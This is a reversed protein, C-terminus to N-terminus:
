HWGGAAKSRSQGPLQIPPQTPELAPRSPRPFDRGGGPNSGLGNLGYRTAIGVSSVWRKINNYQTTLCLLLFPIAASCYAVHCACCGGLWGGPVLTVFAAKVYRRVLMFSEYRSTSTVYPQLMRSLYCYQATLPLPSVATDRSQQYRYYFAPLM